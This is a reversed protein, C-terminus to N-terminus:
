KKIFKNIKLVVNNAGDIFNSMILQKQQIDKVKYIIEHEMQNMQVETQKIKDVKVDKIEELFNKISNEDLSKVVKEIIEIIEVLSGAKSFVDAIRINDTTIIGNRNKINSPMLEISKSGGLGYFEVRAVTGDPIILGKKTILIQVTVYDEVSILKRVYGVNIGMFRVPSGNTIGNIDNFKILYVHPEVFIKYHVFMATCFIVVLVAIWIFIEILIEKKKM